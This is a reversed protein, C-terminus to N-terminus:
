LKAWITYDGFEAAVSYRDRIFDDLLTVDSSISSQNPEMIQFLGSFLVIYQVDKMELDRIIEEQVSLRNVRNAFLEDYETANTRGSVFYFMADNRSSIDHRINGVFIVEDQPVRDQVFKIAQSQEILIRSSNIKEPGVIETSPSLLTRVYTAPVVLARTTWSVAALVLLPYLWRRLSVFRPAANYCLTTLLIIGVISTPLIHIWDARNFAQNFLALGFLTLALVSRHEIKMSQTLVFRETNISSTILGLSYLILPLYFPIWIFIFFVLLNVITLSGDFLGTLNPILVPRPLTWSGPFVTLPFIVLASFLDELPVSFVFYLIVPVVPIVFGLAYRAYVRGIHALRALLASSSHDTNAIYRITLTLVQSAAAYGGVDHRYLTTVGLMVGALVLWIFREAQLFTVLCMMSIMGFALAPFMAYGYFGCSALWLVVIIFPIFGVRPSTLKAAFLYVTLSLLTRAVIDWLREVLLSTGFLKFLGALTYYQGPAYHASWDRYMVEGNLIRVAGTVPIGEDYLYSGPDLRFLIPGGNLLVFYLYAFALVPILLYRRSLGM